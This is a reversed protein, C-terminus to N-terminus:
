AGPVIKRFLTEFDEFERAGEVKEGNVILTPTSQVNYTARGEQARALIKDMEAQDAVCADFRAQTLGALKAYQSLVKLPDSARAWRLQNEFLIGLFAFFRDGELCDAVAAARLALGDLPYHRYVLRAKGPDIWSEKIRPLTENHFTACHPCTLSAYEILTIPAEASGLIRDDDHVTSDAARAGLGFPVLSALAM